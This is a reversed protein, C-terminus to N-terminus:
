RIIDGKLLEPVDQLFIEFDARGDGNVDGQLLGAKYRLEGPRDHFKQGGIFFAFKNNGRHTIDADIGSLDIKDGQAGDFDLIVDHRAGVRSDQKDNFDFTDNSVPDGFTVGGRMTDKNVGGVLLDAGDGGELLDNGKGGYLRDNGSGGFLDDHGDDGFVLDNDDGALLIDDGGGGHISDLGGNGGLANNFRDGVLLDNSNGTGVIEISSFVHVDALNEFKAFGQALSVM